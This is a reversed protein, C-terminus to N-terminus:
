EVAQRFRGCRTNHMTAPSRSDIPTQIHIAGDVIEIRIQVGSDRLTQMSAALREDVADYNLLGDFLGM